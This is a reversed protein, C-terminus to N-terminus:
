GDQGHGGETRPHASGKVARAVLLRAALAGIMGGLLAAALKGAPVNIAVVVLIVGVFIVRTYLLAPVLWLPGRRTLVYQVQAKITLFYVGGGAFGLALAGLWGLLGMGMLGSNM